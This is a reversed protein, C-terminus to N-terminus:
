VSVRRGFFFSVVALVVFVFFLVRGIGAASDAIGAFGFVGAIIAVIFFALAWRLMLDTREPGPIHGLRSRSGQM